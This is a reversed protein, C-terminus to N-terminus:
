LIYMGKSSFKYPMVQKSNQNVFNRYENELRYLMEKVHSIEFHILEFQGSINTQLNHCTKLEQIITMNQGLSQLVDHTLQSEQMLEGVSTVLHRIELTQQRADIRDYRNVSEM